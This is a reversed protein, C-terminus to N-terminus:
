FRLIGDNLPYFSKMQRFFSTMKVCKQLNNCKGDFQRFNASRTANIKPMLKRGLSFVSALNQHWFKIGDRQAFKADIQRIKVGKLMM